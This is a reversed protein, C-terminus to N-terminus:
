WRGGVFGDPQPFTATKAMITCSDQEGATLDVIFGEGEEYPVAIEAQHMPIRGVRASGRRVLLESLIDEVVEQGHTALVSFVDPVEGEVIVIANAEQEAVHDEPLTM